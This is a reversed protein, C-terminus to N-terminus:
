IFHGLSLSWRKLGGQFNKTNNIHIYYDIRLIWKSVKIGWFDDQRNQASFWESRNLGSFDVQPFLFIFYSLSFGRKVM